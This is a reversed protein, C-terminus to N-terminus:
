ALFPAGLQGQAPTVTLKGKSKYGFLTGPYVSGVTCGSLNMLSVSHLTFDMQVM